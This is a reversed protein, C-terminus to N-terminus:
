KKLKNELFASREQYILKEEKRLNLQLEFYDHFKKNAIKNIKEQVFQFGFVPTLRHWTEIEPFNLVIFNDLEERLLKYRNYLAILKTYDLLINFIDEEKMKLIKSKKISFITSRTKKTISKSSTETFEFVDYSENGLILYDQKALKKEDLSLDIQIDKFTISDFNLIEETTFKLELKDILFSIEKKISNFENKFDEAKM